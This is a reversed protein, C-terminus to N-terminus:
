RVDVEGDVPRMVRSQLAASLNNALTQRSTLGHRACGEEIPEVLM